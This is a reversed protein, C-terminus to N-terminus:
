AARVAVEVASINVFLVADAIIVVVKVLNVNGNINSIGVGGGDDVSSKYFHPNNSFFLDAMGM